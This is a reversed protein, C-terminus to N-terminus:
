DNIIISNIIIIISNNNIIVNIITQCILRKDCLKNM